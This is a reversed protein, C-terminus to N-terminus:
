TPCAAGRLTLQFAGIALVDGPTLEIRKEIRRGNLAVGNASHLDEVLICGDLIVLQAHHRSVSPDPLVIENESRRGITIVANGEPLQMSSRANQPGVIELHM